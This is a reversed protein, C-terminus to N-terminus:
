KLYKQYLKEFQAMTWGMDHQQSWAIGKAKLSQYQSENKLLKLVNQALMESDKIPSALTCEDALDAILGVKTGCVVVGCAMAEAVVLGQGEYLSTHLLLHAKHFYNLTEQYPVIDSFTVRDAIGLQTAHRQLAGGLTDGGVITLKCDVKQSIKQFAELLTTQSKVPNLHALHLFQYPPKLPKEKPVFLTKDIGFPIVSPTKKTFHEQLKNRQFQTLVVLENAQQYTWKILSKKVQSTRFVGYDIEPIATADGGQLHIILPLKFRRKLLVGLIGGPFGWIVQILHIKQQKHRQSFKSQVWRIQQPIRQLRQPAILHYGKPKFDVNVPHLSFITVEYKLKLQDVFAQIIPIGQSFSGTGIGGPILLAIHKKM